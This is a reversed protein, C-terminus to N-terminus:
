RPVCCALLQDRDTDGDDDNDPMFGYDESLRCPNVNQLLPCAPFEHEPNRVGIRFTWPNGLLADSHSSRRTLIELVSPPLSLKEGTGYTFTPHQSNDVLVTLPEVDSLFPLSVSETVEAEKSLRLNNEKTVTRRTTQNM